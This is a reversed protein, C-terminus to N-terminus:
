LLSRTGPHFLVVLLPLRSFFLYALCVSVVGVERM